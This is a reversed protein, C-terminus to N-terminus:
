REPRRRTHRVSLITVREGNDSVRYRLTCPRESVLERTGSKAPRGRHPSYSLSDGLRQLRVRTPTAATPNQEAITAAIEVLNSIAGTLWIVAAM